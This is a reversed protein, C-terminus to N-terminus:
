GHNRLLEVMFSRHYSVSVWGGVVTIRCKVCRVVHM